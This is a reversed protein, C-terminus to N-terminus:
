GFLADMLAPTMPRSAVTPAATTGGPTKANELVVRDLARMALRYSEFEDEAVGIREAMREIASAPVPGIGMGFQRETSLEWFSSIWIEYGPPVEPPFLHEPV